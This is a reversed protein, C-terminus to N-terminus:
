LHPSAPLVCLQNFASFWLVCFIDDCFSRLFGALITHMLFRNLGEYGNPASPKPPPLPDSPRIWDDDVPPPVPTASTKATVESIITLADKTAHYMKLVEERHLAEDASEEM